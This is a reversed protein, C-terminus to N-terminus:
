RTRPGTRITARRGDASVQDLPHGGARLRDRAATREPSFDFPFAVRQHVLRYAQVRRLPKGGRDITFDALPVADDFWRRYFSVPIFEDNILLLIPTTGSGSM